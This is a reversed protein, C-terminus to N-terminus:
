EWAKTDEIHCYRCFNDPLLIQFAAEHEPNKMLLLRSKKFAMAQKRESPSSLDAGKHCERCKIQGGYAAYEGHSSTYDMGHNEPTHCGACHLDGKKGFSNFTKTTFASGAGGHCKSCFRGVSQSGHPELSATPSFSPFVTKGIQTDGEHCISCNTKKIAAFHRDHSFKVRGAKGSKYSVVIDLPNRWQKEKEFRGNGKEYFQGPLADEPAFSGDSFITKGSKSDLQVWLLLDDEGAFIVSVGLFIISAALKKLM